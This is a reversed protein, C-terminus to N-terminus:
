KSADQSSKTNEEIKKSKENKNMQEYEKYVDREKNKNNFLDLNVIFFDMSNYKNLNTGGLILLLNKHIISCHESREKPTYPNINAKIWKFNELDFIWFDNFVSKKLLDNRGGHVILINLEEFFNMKAFIRPPPAIGNPKPNFWELPKRGIKLIYIDNKCNNEEDFGGFFFIGEHKLKYGNKNETNNPGKYIHYNKINTKVNEIVVESCHFALFPSKGKYELKNWKLNFFELIAIDNSIKGNELVGGHILMAPGIAHAIHNRRYNM